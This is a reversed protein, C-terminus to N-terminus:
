DEQDRPRRRVERRVPDAPGGRDEPGEPGAPGEPGQTGRCVDVVEIQALRDDTIIINTTVISGPDGADEQRQIVLTNPPTLIQNVNVSCSM